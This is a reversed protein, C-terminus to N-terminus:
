NKGHKKKFENYSLRPYAESAYKERLAECAGMARFAHPPFPSFRHNYAYWAEDWLFVM